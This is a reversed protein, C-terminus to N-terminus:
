HDVLGNVNWMKVVMKKAWHFTLNACSSVSWMYAKDM